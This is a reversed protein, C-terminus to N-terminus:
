DAPLRHKCLTVRNGRDSYSLWTTYHRMMLLGRGSPRELNEPATPDPVDSPDFGPGEDEVEALVEEPGVRYRVRVCKLPDGGNGHRLGNVIAEGLALKMGMCDRASYNYAALAAALDELVPAVGETRRVAVEQWSGRYGVLPKLGSQMERSPVDCSESMTQLSRM